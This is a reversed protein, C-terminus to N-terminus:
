FVINVFEDIHVKVDSYFSRWDEVVSMYFYRLWYLSKEFFTLRNFYNKFYLSPFDRKDAIKDIVFGSVKCVSNAIEANFRDFADLIERFLPIYEEVKKIISLVLKRFFQVALNEAIRSSVHYFIKEALSGTMVVTETMGLAPFLLREVFHEEGLQLAHVMTENCKWSFTRSALDRVVAAKSICLLSVLCLLVCIFFNTAKM